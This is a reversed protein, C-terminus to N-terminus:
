FRDSERNNSNHSLPIKGFTGAIFVLYVFLLFAFGWAALRLLLAIYPHKKRFGAWWDTVPALRDTLPSLARKVPALLGNVFTSITTILKNAM